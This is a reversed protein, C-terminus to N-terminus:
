LEIDATRNIIDGILAVQAALAAEKKGRALVLRGGFFLVDFFPLSEDIALFLATDVQGDQDAAFGGQVHVPHLSKVSPQWGKAGGVTQDFNGPVAERVQPDANGQPPIFIVFFDQPAFVGEANGAFIILAVRIDIVKIGQCGLLDAFGFADDAFDSVGAEFDM